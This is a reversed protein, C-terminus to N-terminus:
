QKTAARNGIPTDNIWGPRRKNCSSSQKISTPDSAKRSATCEIIVISPDTNNFLGVRCSQWTGSVLFSQGSTVRFPYLPERLSFPLLHAPINASLRSGDVVSAFDFTCVSIKRLRLGHLGLMEQLLEM